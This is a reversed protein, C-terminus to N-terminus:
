RRSTRARGSLLLDVRGDSAAELTPAWGSPRTRQPRRRAGASWRRRSERAAAEELVPQAASSCSRRAPTRRRRTGASSARRAEQSLVDEFEARLEEASSWSRRRACGACARDLEEAVERLHEAVLKEIHRQYRAQSWGGQDHRGPQEETHDVVEELRGGRLRYIEGRERGVVAVLAGDGRGVLPVLPALYFSATM